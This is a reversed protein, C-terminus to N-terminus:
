PSLPRIGLTPGFENQGHRVFSQLTAGQRYLDFRAPGLMTRQTTPTQQAFWDAGRTWDVANANVMVPVLQCRCNRHKTFDGWTAYFEGDSALCAICTSADKTAYRLYGRVAGSADYQREQAGRYADWQANRAVGFVVGLAATLGDMMGATTTAGDAVISRTLGDLAVRELDEFASAIPAGDLTRGILDDAIATLRYEVGTMFRLVNAADVAGLDSYARQEATVSSAAVARFIAVQARLRTLLRVFRDLTMLTGVSIPLNDAKRQQIELALADVDGGVADEISLWRRTLDRQQDRERNVLTRKQRDILDIVTRTTM